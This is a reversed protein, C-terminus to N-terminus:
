HQVMVKQRATAGDQLKVTIYYVGNPLGTADWSAGDSLKLRKILQGTTNYIDVLSDYVSNEPALIKFISGLSPNVFNLEKFNDGVSSIGVPRLVVANPTKLGLTGAPILDKIFAGNPDYIRVSSSGGCGIIMNGNPLFDVGEGKPLNSIFIGLYNGNSDFRKVAAGNYDIVMLDGNAEFWINTPGALNSSIFKGLDAGSPSFKNVFKENYSSVYLNGAADWALGISSAVGTATFNDVFAGAQTYRRVKGIGQWQLVYILSDPGIEMRTPGAIGAAFAGIYAGTEADHKSIVGSNLNSILAVKQDELFLIDQPWALNETTFVQGNLGNEDFKLIKWPPNQFNEADSIYLDFNQSSLPIAFCIAMLAPLFFTRTTMTALKKHFLALVIAKNAIFPKM